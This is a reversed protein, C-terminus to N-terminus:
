GVLYYWIGTDRMKDPIEGLQWDETRRVFENELYNEFDSGYFITDVAQWFSVIPMEDMGDFFCRHAYFPILRVSRRLRDLVVTKLTERDTIGAVTDGLFERLLDESHEVDFVFTAEIHRQFDRFRQLNVESLDRWDFFEEGVPVGHFLFERIERPFRFGFFAEIEAVEDLRLGATFTIGAKHLKDIMRMYDM